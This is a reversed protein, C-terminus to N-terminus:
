IAADGLELAGLLAAMDPPPPAEWSLPAHSGPELLSLRRAHLAQRAFGGPLPPYKKATGGYLADGLLPHGLSALHVRIQHTRGTELRCRLLAAAVGNVDTRALVEYHTRAPKGANGHVVAMRTRQRPDRGIPADVVGQEPPKGWVLALYERGVSRAQLQRVLDTQAELTLAVVMLGSTDKDLRHVIGARPLGAARPYRHLLGNLLTGSWNGAAPHVVLGAPKDIVALTKTEAVVALPVPEPLYAAADAAPLPSVELEDGAYVLKKVAAPAGNLLVRGREIWDQLRGRSFEPLLGGLAKDLRQGAHADDVSLRRVALSEVAAEAPTEAGTEPFEGGPLLDDDDLEAAESSAVPSPSYDPLKKEPVSKKMLIRPM